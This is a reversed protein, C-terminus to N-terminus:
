PGAYFIRYVTGGAATPMPSRRGNKRLNSM